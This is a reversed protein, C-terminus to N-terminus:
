YMSKGKYPCKIELLKISVNLENLILDDPSYSLWPENSWMICGSQYVHHNKQNETCFELQIKM